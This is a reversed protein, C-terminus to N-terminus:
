KRDNFMTLLINVEYLVVFDHLTEKSNLVLTTHFLYNFFQGPGGEGLANGKRLSLFSFFLVKQQLNYVAQRILHNTTSVKEPFAAYNEFEEM